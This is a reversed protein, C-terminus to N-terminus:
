VSCTSAPSLLFSPSFSVVSNLFELVLSQFKQGPTGVTTRGRDGGCPDQYAHITLHDKPIKELFYIPNIMFSGANSYKKPESKTQMTFFFDYMIIYKNTSISGISAVILTIIDFLFFDPFLLVPENEINKNSIYFALIFILISHINPRSHLNFYLLSLVCYNM